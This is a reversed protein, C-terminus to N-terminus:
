TFTTPATFACAECGVAGTRSAAAEFNEVSELPCFFAEIAGPVRFNPPYVINLQMNAAKDMALKLMVGKMWSNEIKSKLQGLVLKAMRMAKQVVSEPVLGSAFPMLRRLLSWGMLLRSDKPGIGESDDIMHEIVLPANDWIIVLHSGEYNAYKLFLREWDDPFCVFCALIVCPKM